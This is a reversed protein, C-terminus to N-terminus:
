TKQSMCTCRSPGLWNPFDEGLLHRSDDQLPQTEGLKGPHGCDTTGELLHVDSSQRQLLRLATVRGLARMPCLSQASKGADHQPPDTEIPRKEPHICAPLLGWTQHMHNMDPGITTDM